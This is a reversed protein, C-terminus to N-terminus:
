KERRQKHYDMLGALSKHRFMKDGHKNTSLLGLDMQMKRTTMRELHKPSINWVDGHVTRATNIGEEALYQGIDNLAYHRVSEEVYKKARAM